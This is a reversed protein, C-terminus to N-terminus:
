KGKIRQHKSKWREVGYRFPFYWKIRCQDPPIGAQQLIKQWDDATFARAVSLPGDNRSMKNIPVLSFIYKIFLYPAQHRHLDNIFWGQLTHSDMWQLFRILEDNELHHTFHTSIVFDAKETANMEFIDCTKYHINMNEPTSKKASTIAWPKIDIGTLHANIKEKKAWRRVQRLMEGRGCGVDIITLSNGSSISPLINKLWFLVPRYGRTYRNVTEIQRLCEDFEAFTTVATDMVEIESSRQKLSAFM